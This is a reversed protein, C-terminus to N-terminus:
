FNLGLFGALQAFGPYVRRGAGPYSAPVAHIAHRAFWEIGKRHALRNVATPNTRPDIPGGMLIMSMPASPDDDEEMLSVAALVPVAPQCVAIVHTDPGLLRLMAVIYDIYGDLDFTGESLPVLRADIWRVLLPRFSGRLLARM